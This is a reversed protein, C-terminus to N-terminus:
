TGEPNMGDKEALARLTPEPASLFRELLEDDTVLRGIVIEVNGHSM